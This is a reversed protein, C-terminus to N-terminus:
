DPHALLGELAGGTVEELLPGHLDRGVSEEAQLRGALLRETSAARRLHNGGPGPQELPTLITAPDGGMFRCARRKAMVSYRRARRVPTVASPSASRKETPTRVM